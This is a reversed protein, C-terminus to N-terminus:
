CERKGSKCESGATRGCRLMRLRCGAAGTRRHFGFTQAVNHVSGQELGVVFVAWAALGTAKGSGSGSGLGSESLWGAAILDRVAVYFGGGSRHHAMYFFAFVDADGDTLINLTGCLSVAALYFRAPQRFRRLDVIRKWAAQMKQLWGFSLGM